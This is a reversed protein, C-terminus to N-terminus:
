RGHPRGLVDDVSQERLRFVRSDPTPQLSEIRRRPFGDHLSELALDVSEHTGRRQRRLGRCVQQDAGRVPERIQLRGRQAASRGSQVEASVVRSSERVEGAGRAEEQRRASLEFSRARPPAHHFHALEGPLRALRKGPGLLRARHENAMSLLPQQRLEFDVYPIDM